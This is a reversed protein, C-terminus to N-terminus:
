GPQVFWPAPDVAVGSKRLEFYTRKGDLSGTEGVTGLKQARNVRTGVSVDFGALHAYVSRYGGGHDVVVVLGWGEFPEAFVVEGDATALVDGEVGRWTLGAGRIMPASAGFAHTPTATLPRALTGKFRHFDFSPDVNPLTELRAGFRQATVDLDTAAGVTRATSVIRERGGDFTALDAETRALEVILSGREALITGFAAREEDARRVVDTDALRAPLAQSGAYRLLRETDESAVPGATSTRRAARFAGLWKALTRNVELRIPQAARVAVDATEWRSQLATENEELRRSLDDVRATSLTARSDLVNLREFVTQHETGAATAAVSLVAVFAATTVVRDRM